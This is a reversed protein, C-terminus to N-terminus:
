RTQDPAVRITCRVAEDAKAAAKRCAEITDRNAAVMKDGALIAEFQAPSASAMLRQGADWMPLDLARAARKEPWHWSEPTVKRAIPGALAAWLFMGFLVGGAGFGFLWYNQEDGKRASVMHSGLQRTAQDLAARAEAIIQQDSRRAESGATVIQGAIHAPTMAQASSKYLADVRQATATINNSIRGLTESYDPTEVEAREAALREVARRLLAVEARVGEFAEAAADGTDQEAM